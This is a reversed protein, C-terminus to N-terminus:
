QALATVDLVSEDATVLRMLKAALAAGPDPPVLTRIEEAAAAAIAQWEYRRQWAREMAEDLSDETPAAALFGTANDRVVERNGAVDTVIPVRGSLMAEVLVLPLGECRSPLVLAHHENWIAPVDNSFGGFKVNTLGYYGAMTEIGKQNPGHGFFTVSVNRERWKARAMVRILLDQGKEAPYFRGVCALKWGAHVSPWDNRRQWPVLFPNRVVCAHDLDAGIQEETQRRNHESVFYCEVAESYVARMRELRQDVPWYMAGAKQSILVFRRKMRRCVNALPLGDFNGGQSVIVLDYQALSLHRTLSFVRHAAGVPYANKIIFRYLKLPFLAFDRVRAGLQKLRVVRPQVMSINPKIVTIDHGQEALEVAAAAWLEESGGWPTTNSSVFLFRYSHERAPKM